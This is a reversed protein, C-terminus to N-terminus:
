QPVESMLALVNGWPDRFFALWLASGEHEAVKRPAELFEVGRGALSEHAAQIDAVDFYLITGPDSPDAPDRGAASEAGEAGTEPEGVMLRVGGCDFFAMGPVEFLLTMGLADRYYATAAGVDGVHLAVQGIRALGDFGM